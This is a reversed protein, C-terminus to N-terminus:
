NYKHKHKHKDHTYTYWHQQRSILFFYSFFSLSPTDYIIVSLLLLLFLFLLPSFSRSLSIFNSRFYPCANYRLSSSLLSCRFLAVDLIFARTSYSYQVKYNDDDPRLPRLKSKDNLMTLPTSRLIRDSENTTTTTTTTMHRLMMKLIYKWEKENASVALPKHTPSTFTAHPGAERLYDQRQKKTPYKVSLLLFVMTTTQFSRFSTATLTLALRSFWM